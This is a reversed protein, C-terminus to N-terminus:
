ACNGHHRTNLKLQDSNSEAQRLAHPRTARLRSRLSVAERQEGNDEGLVRAPAIHHPHDHAPEHARQM